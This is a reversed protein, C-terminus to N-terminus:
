PKDEKPKESQNRESHMRDWEEIIPVYYLQEAARRARVASDYDDFRGLSIQKYRLGLRAQYVTGRQVTDVKRIGSVEPSNVIHRLRSIITDDYLELM